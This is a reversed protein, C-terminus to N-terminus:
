PGGRTNFLWCSYYGGIRQAAVALFDDGKEEKSSNPAPGPIKNLIWGVTLAKALHAKKNYLLLMTTFITVNM